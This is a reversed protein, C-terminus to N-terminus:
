YSDKEQKGAANRNAAEQKRAAARNVAAQNSGLQGQRGM